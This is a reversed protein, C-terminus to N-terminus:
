NFKRKLKFKYEDIIWLPFQAMEHFLLTDINDFIWYNLQNGIAGALDILKIIKKNNTQSTYTMSNIGNWTSLFILNEHLNYSFVPHAM